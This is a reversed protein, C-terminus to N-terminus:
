VTREILCLGKGVSADGGFQVVSGSPLITEFADLDSQEGQVAFWFSSRAPVDEEYWLNESKGSELYNRASIPLSISRLQEEPLLVVGQDAFLTLLQQRFDGNLAAEANWGDVGVPGVAGDPLAYYATSASLASPIVPSSQGTLTQRLQWYEHLAVRSTVIYYAASGKSAQVPRGLLKASLFRLAGPTSAKSGRVPSGFLRLVLSDEGGCQREFFERLAGKVGSANMMPYQTVPDKEVTNDIIDFNSEGSGMHLNTLCTIRFFITNM